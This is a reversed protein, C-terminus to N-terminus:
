ERRPLRVTVVAGGEPRNAADVTGRHRGVVEAVLALGLGYHRARDDGPQADRATAFREFARSDVGASFGPGDDEM